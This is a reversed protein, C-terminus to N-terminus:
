KNPLSSLWITILTTIISVIIPCFISTFFIKLFNIINTKLENIFYDKGITTSWYNCCDVMTSMDNYAILTKNSDLFNLDTLENICGNITSKDYQFHKYLQERTIPNNKSAYKNIYKLIKRSYKNM